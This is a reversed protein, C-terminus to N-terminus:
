LIQEAGGATGFLMAIIDKETIRVPACAFPFGQCDSGLLRSNFIRFRFHGRAPETKGRTPRAASNTEGPVVFIRKRRRDPSKALMESDLAHVRDVHQRGEMDAPQHCPHTAGRGTALM